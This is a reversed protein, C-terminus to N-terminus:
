ETVQVDSLLNRMEVLKSLDIFIHSALEAASTRSNLGNASFPFSFPCASWTNQAAIVLSALNMADPELSRFILSHFAASPVTTRSNGFGFMLPSGPWDCGPPM